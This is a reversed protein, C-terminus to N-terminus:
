PTVGDGDFPVWMVWVSEDWYNTPGSGELDVTYTGANVVAAGSTACGNDTPSSTSESTSWVQTGHVKGDDIELWCVTTDDGFEAFTSMSGSMLLIGRRPATIETSLTKSGGTFDVGENSNFSARPALGDAFRHMFASMQGRTVFDDPCFETNAPPNCGQTIGFDKLWAIDAHFTHTTPVDDFSHTALATLPAVIMATIGVIFAIQVWRRPISIPVDQDDM